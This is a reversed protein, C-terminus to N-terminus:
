YALDSLLQDATWRNGSYIRELRGDPGILATVLSHSFQGAESVYVLGFYGAIAKIEQASGTAFQWEDFRAPKMYRGAYERLVAPSDHETDFSITLLRPARDSKRAAQLERHIRAFNASTRPCYDPLPCRTYIFTLLLPRGRFRSLRIPAADQNLLTFDPVEAGVRPAGGSSANPAGSDATRSIKLGEIWSRDGKIVLTAQVTQGPALVPIAWDDGVNFPMTMADMFGEIKEHALTVQKQSADVSVVKGRVEFRQEPTRRCGAAFCACVCFFLVCRNIRNM